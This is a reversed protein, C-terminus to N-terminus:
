VVPDLSAILNQLGRLLERYKLDAARAEAQSVWGLRAAVDVLYQAEAASGTSINLFHVYERGTRRASGEVINCAASVAARRIQATLGFRETTPFDRTIRYVEVVLEDALSFVRLKRHDRGM